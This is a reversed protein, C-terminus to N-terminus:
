KKVAVIQLINYNAGLYDNIISSKEVEYGTRELANIYNHHSNVYTGGIYPSEPPIDEPKVILGCDYGEIPSVWSENLIIKKVNNRAFWTFYNELERVAFLVSTAMMFVADARLGKALADLAYGCGFFLNGPLEGFACQNQFRLNFQFDFSLFKRKPFEKALFYMTPDIRAGINLLSEISTDDKITEYVLKTGSEKLYRESSPLNFREPDIFLSHPDIREIFESKSYNLFIAAIEQQSMNSSVQRYERWKKANQWLKHAQDIYDDLNNTIDARLHAYLEMSIILTSRQLELPDVGTIFAPMTTFPQSNLLALDKVAEALQLYFDLSRPGFTSAHQGIHYKIKVALNNAVIYPYQQADMEISTINRM